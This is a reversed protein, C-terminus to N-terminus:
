EHKAVHTGSQQQMVLYTNLLYIERGICIYVCLAYAYHGHLATGVEFRHLQKPFTKYVLSDWIQSTM